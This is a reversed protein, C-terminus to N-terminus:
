ASQQLAARLWGKVEDKSPIRGACMLKENIVLGPTFLIPYRQIEEVKELHLITAELDPDDEALAELAAIAVREVADCNYCGPGLIKVDLM